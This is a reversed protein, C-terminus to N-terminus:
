EEADVVDSGEIEDTTTSGPCILGNDFGEYNFIWLEFDKPPNVRFAIDLGLSEFHSRTSERVGEFDGGSLVSASQKWIIRYREEEICNNTSFRSAEESSLKTVTVLDEFNEPTVTKVTLNSNVQETTLSDTETSCGTLILVLTALSLMIKKAKMILKQSKYTIKSKQELLIMIKGM